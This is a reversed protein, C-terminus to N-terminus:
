QRKQELTAALSAITMPLPALRYRRSLQQYDIAAFGKTHMIEIVAQAQASQNSVSIPLVTPSDPTLERLGAFHEDLMVLALSGLTVHGGFSIYSAPINAPINDWNIGVYHITGQLGADSAAKAAGFAMPDNAAWVADVQVARSFLANALRYAENQSWNGFDQYVLQIADKHQQLARQMGLTRAKSSSSHRDGNIALLRLPRRSDEALLASIMQFGTDSLDATLAGLYHRPHPQKPAVLFDNNVLFYPIGGSELLAVHQDLVANENVLLLYDPRRAIGQRLLEVLKLRDRDAYEISLQLNLDEAAALMFQSVTAWFVGTQDGEASGPNIFLIHPSEAALVSRPISWNLVLVIVFLFTRILVPISTLAGYWM